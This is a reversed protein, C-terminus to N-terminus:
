IGFWVGWFVLMDGSFSWNLLFYMKWGNIKLPCENTKQPTIPLSKSNKGEHNRDILTLKAVGDSPNSVSLVDFGLVWFTGRLM